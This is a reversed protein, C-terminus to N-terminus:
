LLTEHVTTLLFDCGREMDACREGPRLGYLRFDFTPYAEDLGAQALGAHLCQHQTDAASDVRRSSAEQRLPGDLPHAGSALSVVVTEDGHAQRILDLMVLMFSLQRHIGDLGIFAVRHVDAGRYETQRGSGFCELRQARFLTIEHQTVGLRPHAHNSLVGDGIGTLPQHDSRVMRRLRHHTEEGLETVTRAVQRRQGTQDLILNPLDGGRQSRRLLQYM